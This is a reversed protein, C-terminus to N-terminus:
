KKNKILQEYELQQAQYAEYLETNKVVYAMKERYYKKYRPRIFTPKFRIKHTQQEKDYLMTLRGFLHKQIRINSISTDLHISSYSGFLGRSAFPTGRFFSNTIKKPKYFYEGALLCFPLVDIMLQCGYSQCITIKFWEITDTPYITDRIPVKKTNLCRGYFYYDILYGYLNPLLFEGKNTQLTKPYFIFSDARHPNITIYFFVPELENKFISDKYHTLPYANFLELSDLDKNYNKAPILEAEREYLEPFDFPFTKPLTDRLFPAAETVAWFDRGFPIHILKNNELHGYINAFFHKEAIFDYRPTQLEFYIKNNLGKRILLEYRKKHKYTSVVKYSQTANNWESREDKHVEYYCSKYSTIKCASWLLLMIAVLFYKFM